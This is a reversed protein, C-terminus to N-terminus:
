GNSEDFSVGGGIQLQAKMENAYPSLIDIVTKRAEPNGCEILLPIDYIHIKNNGRVKDCTKEILDNLTRSESEQLTIGLRTELQRVTLNGLLIM